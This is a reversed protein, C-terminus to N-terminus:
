GSRRLNVVTGLPWVGPVGEVTWTVGRDDVVRDSAVIDPWQVRFYLTAADTWTDGASVDMESSSGPAWLGGALTLSSAGEWSELTATGSYPDAVRTPRLRIM